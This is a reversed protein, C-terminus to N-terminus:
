MLKDTITNDFLIINEKATLSFMELVQQKNLGLVTQSRKFLEKVCIDITEDFPVNTFQFDVDLSVM